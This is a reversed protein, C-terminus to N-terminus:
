ACPQCPRIFARGDAEPADPAFISPKRAYQTPYQKGDAGTRTAPLTLKGSTSLEGKIRYVYSVACGCMEAIARSSM